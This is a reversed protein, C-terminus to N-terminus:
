FNVEYVGGGVMVNGGAAQASRIGYEGDEVILCEDPTLGMREMARAYMEPDPKPRAVDQNSLFFEVYPLLGGRELMLEVSHRTSNSCVAMRFGSNKLKALTRAREDVPRCRKRISEETYRQKLKAIAAHLDRPLGREESLMELKRATPLGDYTVLHEHRTIHYGYDSLARNLAEYHWDKADILVGDMDFLVGRIAMASM